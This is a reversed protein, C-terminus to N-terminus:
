GAPTLQVVIGRAAARVSPLAALAPHIIVNVNRLYGGLEAGDSLSEARTVGRFCERRFTGGHDGDGRPEPPAGTPLGCREVQGLQGLRDERAFEVDDRAVVGYPDLRAIWDHELDRHDPLKADVVHRDLNPPRMTLTPGTKGVSTLTGRRVPRRGSTM